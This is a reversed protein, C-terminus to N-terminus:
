VVSKRDQYQRVVRMVTDRVEPLLNAQNMGKGSDIVFVVGRERTLRAPPGDLTVPQGNESVQLNRVAAADGTWVFEMTNRNGGRSGGGEFLQVFLQRGDVGAGQAGAPGGPVLVLGAVVAVAAVARVAVRASM